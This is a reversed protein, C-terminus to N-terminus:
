VGRWSQRRGGHVQQLSGSGSDTPQRSLVRLYLASLAARPNPATSMIEGLVTGPRAQIRGNVVPGNMLFLAQPITGVVDENPVSPDVGFLRDFLLRQGARDCERRRGEQRNAFGLGAAEAAKKANGKTM